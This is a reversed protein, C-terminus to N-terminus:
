KKEMECKAISHACFSHAFAEQCGYKMGRVPDLWQNMRMFGPSADAHIKKWRWRHWIAHRSTERDQYRPCAQVYTALSCCFHVPDSSCYQALITHLSLEHLAHGSERNQECKNANDRQLQQDRGIEIHIPLREWRPMRQGMRIHGELFIHRCM